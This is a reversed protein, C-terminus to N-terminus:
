TQSEGNEPCAKGLNKDKSADGIISAVKISRFGYRELHEFAALDDLIKQVTLTPCKRLCVTIDLDDAHRGLLLDRVYGGNIMLSSLPYGMEKFFHLLLFCVKKDLEPIRSM